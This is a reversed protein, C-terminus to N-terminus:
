KGLYAPFYVIEELVEKWYREVDETKPDVHGDREVTCPLSQAIREIFEWRDRAEEDTDSRAVWGRDPDWTHYPMAANYALELSLTGGRRSWSFNCDVVNRAEVVTLKGVDIDPFFRGIAAFVQRNTLGKAPWRHLPVHKQTQTM